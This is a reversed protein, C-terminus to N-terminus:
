PRAGGARRDGVPGGARGPGALRVAVVRRGPDLRRGVGAHPDRRRRLDGAGSRTYGHLVRVGTMTALEDAYDAEGETRAYHVFAIRGGFNRARLTRLMAMVPTIGSGGSVFLIRRATDDVTFDGSPAGIGVVMGAQARDCLFASVLGGDHRAVTLEIARDGEANAPSYCRTHRRGDIEVSVTLHHGATFGAFLQAGVQNPRLTLTVARRGRRRVEVITARGERQTWAPDILETFSDLGHPGALLNALTSGLGRGRSRPALTQTFM